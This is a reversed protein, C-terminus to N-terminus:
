KFMESASGRKFYGEEKKNYYTLDLTGSANKHKKDIKNLTKDMFQLKEVIKKSDGLEVNFRKDVNLVINYSSSIDVGNVGYKNKKSIDIINKVIDFDSENSFEAIKGTECISFKLGKIETLKKSPKKVLELVKYESNLLAYKKNHKICYVAKTETPVLVVKDPLQKKVEVHGIYPLAETVKKNVSSKSLMLINDGQKISAASQIAQKNYRKGSYDVTIQNIPLLVTTLLIIFVVLPLVVLAWIFSKRVRRKKKPFASINVDKKM